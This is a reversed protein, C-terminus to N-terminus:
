GNRYEKPVANANIYGAKEAALLLTALPSYANPPGFLETLEPVLDCVGHRWGVGHDVLDRSLRFISVWAETAVSVNQMLKKMEVDHPPKISVLVKDGAERMAVARKQKLSQRAADIAARKQWDAKDNANDDETSFNDPDALVMKILAEKSDANQQSGRRAAREEINRKLKKDTMVLRANQSDNATIDPSVLTQIKPIM